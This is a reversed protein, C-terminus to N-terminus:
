QSLSKGQIQLQVNIPGSSPDVVNFRYFRYNTWGFDWATTSSVQIMPNTVTSISMNIWNSGDNSVQWYGSANNIYSYPTITFTGGGQKSQSSIAIPISPTTTARAVTTALQFNSADVPIVFYTTKDTLNAPPISSNGSTSFLVPLGSSYGHNSIYFGLISTNVASTSGGYMYGNNSTSIDVLDTTRMTYKTASGMSTATTYVVGAATWSSKIIAATAANATLADSISNAVVGVSSGSSWDVGYKLWVGNVAIAAADRGGTFLISSTSIKNPLSSTFSYANAYVGSVNATSYVTSATSTSTTIEGFQGLANAINVAVGTTTNTGFWELGETLRTGNFTIYMGQIGITSKVNLYNVASASSFYTGSNVTFTGTSAQGDKISAASYTVSSITLQASMLDIAGGATFSATDIIYSQSYPLAPESILKTNYVVRGALVSVSVIAVMSFLYFLKKMRTEKSTM